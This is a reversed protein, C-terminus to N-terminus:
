STEKPRHSAMSLPHDASKQHLQFDALSSKDLPTADPLTVSLPNVQRGKVRFEYHVHPGSALGTSGVYGILDGQKVRTGARVGRAFRSLHGYATSINGKHGIVILNGYGGKRGAFKVIGDSTTRIPTGTPAGYDVGRHARQKKLVPHYRSRSFRSTVRSFKLPSRLFAKQLSKGQSDYYGSGKKEEFYFAQLPRKNHQILETSLVRGSRPPLGHQHILEYVVSLRDGKRLERHFDVEGSFIEAIQVAVGDPIDSADTAEFLTSEIEANGVVIETEGPSTEQRATLEGSADREIIIFTDTANLPFILKQLKGYDDTTAAVMKGPRLQRFILRASPDRKMFSFAAPDDVGLRSLVSAMTDNENLREERLFQPSQSQNLPKSTISLTEIVAKQDVAEPLKSAPVAIATLAGAISVTFTGLLVPALWNLSAIKRRMESLIPRIKM